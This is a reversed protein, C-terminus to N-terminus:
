FFGCFHHVMLINLDNKIRSSQEKKKRNDNCTCGDLEIM